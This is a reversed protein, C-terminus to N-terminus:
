WVRSNSFSNWKLRYRVRLRRTSIAWARQRVSRWILIQNWFRRIFALFSVGALMLMLGSEGDEDDDDWWSAMMRYLDMRHRAFFIPLFLAFHFLQPAKDVIDTQRFREWTACGDLLWVLCTIKIFPKKEVEEEAMKIVLQLLYQIRATKVRPACM